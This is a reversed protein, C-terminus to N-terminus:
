EELTQALVELPHLLKYGYRLAQLRCSFGTALLAPTQKIQRQWNNFLSRAIKFNSPKCGFSGAMGCCGLELLQLDNQFIQQWASLEHAQLSQESCHSALYLQQKPKRSIHKALYSAVGQVQQQWSPPEDWASQLFSQVSPELVLIPLDPMSMNGAVQQVRKFEALDGENYASQGASIPPLLQYGIGAFNLIRMLKQWLHYHLSYTWVDPLLLVMPRPEAVKVSSSRLQFLIRAYVAFVRETLLWFYSGFERRHTQYYKALFWAKAKPINVAVPCSTVCAHCGLCKDLSQKLAMPEAGADWFRLMQARGKPSHAKDGTARYSPCMVPTRDGLCAAQGNCALWPQNKAYNPQRWDNSFRLLNPGVLKHPNFINKPDFIAKVQTMAATIEAGWFDSAFESRYGLGHEGWFVGSHAYCIQMVDDVIQKALTQDAVLDLNLAPRVHICGADLHGYMGFFLGKTQLYQRLSIIYEPLSAKPVATDEILALPRRGAADQYKSILAVAKARLLWFKAVQEPATILTYRWESSLRALLGEYRSQEVLFLVEAEGFDPLDIPLETQQRLAQCLTRDMLEFAGTAPLQVAQALATAINPHQLVLLTQKTKPKIKLRVSRILGLTGESGCILAALNETRLFAALDYGGINRPLAKARAKILKVTAEPLAHNLQDLIKQRDEVLNTDLISGDALVMTLSHVNDSMRGFCNGALGVANTAVMGGITCRDAPSIEVAFEQEFGSLYQQVSQLSCGAALEVWGEGLSLEIINHLYRQMDLVVGATLSQGVTATSGGQATINLEFQRIYKIVIPLDSLLKPYIVAVPVKQFISNDNAHVQRQGLENTVIGAFQSRKLAAIFEVVQSM